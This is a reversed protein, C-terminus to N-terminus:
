NVLDSVQNQTVGILKAARVQTLKRRKIEKEIKIMLESRLKLNAAEKKSFGLDEFVNGGAPTVDATIKKM